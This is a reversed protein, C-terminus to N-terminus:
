FMGTLWLKFRGRRTPLDDGALVGFDENYFISLAQLHPSTINEVDHLTAPFVLQVANPFSGVPPAPAALYGAQLFGLVPGPAPLGMQPHHGAPPPHGAIHKQKPFVPLNPLQRKYQRHNQFEIRMNQLSARISGIDAVAPGLAATVAPGVAATVAPGVAAAIAAAIVPAIWAGVVVESERRAAEGLEAETVMRPQGPPPDVEYLQEIKRKRKNEEAIRDDTIVAGGLIQPTPEVMTNALANHLPASVGLM